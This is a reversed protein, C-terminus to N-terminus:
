KANYVWVYGQGLGVVDVEIWAGHTAGVTGADVLTLNATGFNVLVPSAGPAIGVGINGTTEVTGDIKANGEGYVSYNTAGGTAKFYGGYTVGGTENRGQGEAYIGFYDVNTATSAGSNSATFYGGHYDTATAGSSRNVVLAVNVGKCGSVTNGSNTVAIDQGVSVSAAGSMSLVIKQGYATDSAQNQILSVSLGVENDLTSTYSFLGTGEGYFAYNNVGGSAKGHVGAAWGGVEARGAAEGYIGVYKVNTATSAGSNNCLFYGAHHSTATAGSSRDTTAEVNLGRVYGTANGTNDANIDLGVVYSTGGGGAGAIIKEGYGGENADNNAFTIQLGYEADTTSTYAITNKTTFANAQDLYAVNNLTGGTNISAGGVTPINTSELDTFWGKVVRTGTLGLSAAVVFTDDTKLVNAASRYLNVDPRNTGDGWSLYGDDSFVFVNNGTFDIYYTAATSSGALPNLSNGSLGPTAHGHIVNKSTTTGATDYDFILNPPFYISGIGITIKNQPDTSSVLFEALNLSTNGRVGLYATTTAANNIRVIGGVHLNNSVSVVGTSDTITIGLGTSETLELNNGITSNLRIGNLVLNDVELNTLGTLGGGTLTATGDTLTGVLVSGSFFGAAFKYTNSGLDITASVGAGTATVPLLANGYNVHRDNDLVDSAVVRTGAALIHFTM